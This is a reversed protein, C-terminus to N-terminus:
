AAPKVSEWNGLRIVPVPTRRAPTVRLRAAWKPAKRVPTGVQYAGPGPTPEVKEDNFRKIPARPMSFEPSRARHADGPHYEWPAPLDACEIEIPNHRGAIIHGKYVFRPKYDDPGYSPGPSYSKPVYSTGDLQHFTKKALEPFIHLDPLDIGSTVTTYDPWQREGITAARGRRFTDSPVDYHCPSPYDPPAKPPHRSGGITWSPSECGFQNLDRVIYHTKRKAVSSRAPTPATRAKPVSPHADTFSQRESKQAASTRPRTLFTLDAM